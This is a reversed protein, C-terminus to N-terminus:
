WHKWAGHLLAVALHYNGGRKIQEKYITALFGINKERSIRGVYILKFADNNLQYNKKFFGNRKDPHFKETDIGRPYFKIKYRKIGKLFGSIDSAGKVETYTRAINLSSHDDSGGIISKKWPEPGGPKMDYKNSLNM